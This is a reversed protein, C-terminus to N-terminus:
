PVSRLHGRRNPTEDIEKDEDPLRYWSKIVLSDSKTLNLVKVASIGLAQVHEYSTIQEVPLMITAAGPVVNTANAYQVDWTVYYCYVKM